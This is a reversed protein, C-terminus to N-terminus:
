SRPGAPSIWISFQNSKKLSKRGHMKEIYSIFFWHLELLFCDGLGAVVYLACPRFPVPVILVDVIERIIVEYVSCALFSSFPVNICVGSYIVV